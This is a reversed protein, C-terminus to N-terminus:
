IPRVSGRDVRRRNSQPHRPAGGRGSVQFNCGIDRLEANVSEVLETPLDEAMQDASTTISASGETLASLLQAWQQVLTTRRIPELGARTFVAQCHQRHWQTPGHAHPQLGRIACGSRLAHRSPQGSAERLGAESLLRGCHVASIGYIRGLDTLSLWQPEANLAAPPGKGSPIPYLMSSKGTGGHQGCCLLVCGTLWFRYRTAVM